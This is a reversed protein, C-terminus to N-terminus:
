GAGAASTETSAAADIAQVVHKMGSGLSGKVLVADGAAVAAAVIPALELSNAAHAARMAAPVADFLHRMLPGCAFLLDASSVLSDALGAHEAPGEGGLELMDGLVAIRRRAPQLRLIDLAARMSAGNANYSEDLLLLRGGPFPMSRRLGRGALPAFRELGVIAAAPDLGMAAVTALVGL